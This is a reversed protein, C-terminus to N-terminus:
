KKAGQRSDPLVIKTVRVESASKVMRTLQFRSLGLEVEIDKRSAGEAVMDAIRDVFGSEASKWEWRIRGEESHLAAELPAADDGTLNRAKEFFVEFRAGESTQYEAPRKLNIVTDLV